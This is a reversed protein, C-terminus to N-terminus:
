IGLRKRVANLHADVDSDIHGRFIDKFNPVAGKIDHVATALQGNAKDSKRAHWIVWAIVGLGLVAGVWILYPLLWAAALCMAGTAGLGAGAWRLGVPLLPTSTFAFSLGFAVVGLLICIGSFWHLIMQQRGVSAEREEQEKQKIQRKLLDAEAALALRQQEIEALRSRLDDSTAGAADRATERIAPSILSATTASPVELASRLPLSPRSICGTMLLMSILCAALLRM